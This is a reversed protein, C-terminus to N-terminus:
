AVLNNISVKMPIKLVALRHTLCGQDQTQSHNLATLSCTQKNVSEYSNETPQYEIWHM